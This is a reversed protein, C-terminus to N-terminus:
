RSRLMSRVVAHVAIRVRVRGRMRVDFLRWVVGLGGVGGMMGDNVCFSLTIRYLRSTKYRLAFFFARLLQRSRLM